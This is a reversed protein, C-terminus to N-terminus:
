ITKLTSIHSPIKISFRTSQELIKFLTFMYTQTDLVFMCFNYNVLKFRQVRIYTAFRMTMIYGMDNHQALSTM